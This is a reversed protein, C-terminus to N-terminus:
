GAVLKDCKSKEVGVEVNSPTAQFWERDGRAGRDLDSICQVYMEYKEEQTPLTRLVRKGEVVLTKWLEADRSLSHIAKAAANANMPKFYLAAEKCADRAFKADVTVIPRGMAMAEPYNASFSELVSPLFLIHSSKYVSPGDAVAVRGINQISDLVGLKEALNRIASWGTSGEPLTMVFEFRRGPELFNLVEAVYPIIELNKHPYYASLCLIRLTERPGPVSATEDCELYHKGCNNTIIQIRDSDLKLRKILGEKAVLSETVWADARKYWYSKYLLILLYRSKNHLGHISRFALVNSHTVWGDAVGCLHPSDFKVYAPGFFTFVVNPNVKAEHKKLKKRSVSDRAPTPEIVETRFKPLAVGSKELEDFVDRSLVFYWEVLDQKSIATRIFSVAAQLAGGM